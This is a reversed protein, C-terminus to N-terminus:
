AKGGTKANVVVEWGWCALGGVLVAMAQSGADGFEAPMGLVLSAGGFIAFGYGLISLRKRAEHALGKSM